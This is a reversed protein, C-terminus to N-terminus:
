PNRRVRTPRRRRTWALVLLGATVATVLAWLWSGADRWWVAVAALVGASALWAALAPGGCCVAIGFVPWLAMWISGSDTHSDGRKTPM